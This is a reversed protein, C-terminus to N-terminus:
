LHDVLAFAEHDAIAALNRPLLTAIHLTRQEASFPMAAITSVLATHRQLLAVRYDFLCQEFSYEGVGRRVLAAHYRHLLEIEVTRRDAPLLNESVFYAVDWVGCGRSLFQWDIIAFAMEDGAAEAKGGARTGFLLNGLQYDRHILTRPAAGFIHRRLAARKEGLRASPAALAQPLQEGAAAHFAPWWEAYQQRLAIPDPNTDGDTLWALQAADSQGWWRAHLKAIELVAREAQEVTCGQARDGSRMPALDQLLLLHAGSTTDIDAYYCRPTPLDLQPALSQYFRVERAYSATSRLRMAENSSSFKAILTRPLDASEDLTRPLDGAQGAKGNTYDLHLRVTEGFFGSNAALPAVTFDSV